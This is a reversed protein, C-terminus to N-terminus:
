GSASGCGLAARMAPESSDVHWLATNVSRYAPQVTALWHREGGVPWPGVIWSSGARCLAPALRAYQLVLHVLSRSAADNEFWTAAGITEAPEVEM